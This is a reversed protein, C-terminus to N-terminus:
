FSNKGDGGSSVVTREVDRIGREEQIIPGM